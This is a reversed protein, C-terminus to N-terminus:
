SLILFKHKIQWFMYKLKQHYSFRLISHCYMICVLTYIICPINIATAYVRSVYQFWYERPPIQLCSYKCWHKNLIRPSYFFKIKSIKIIWMITTVKVLINWQNKIHFISETYATVDTKLKSKRGFVPCQLVFFAYVESVKRANTGQYLNSYNGWFWSINLFGRRLSFHVLQKLIPIHEFIFILIM